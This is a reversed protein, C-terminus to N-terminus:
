RVYINPQPPTSMGNGLFFSPHPPQNYSTNQWAIAVRYQADHMLTHIRRDTQTTTAYRVAITASGAVSATVAFQAAAGVANDGNCFGSGSYGAHNSEIVGACTAPASEVEYRTAAASAAPIVVGSGTVTLAVGVALLAARRRHLLM